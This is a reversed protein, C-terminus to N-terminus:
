SEEPIVLDQPDIVWEEEEEWAPALVFRGMIKGMGISEGGYEAPQSSASSSKEDKNGEEIIVATTLFNMATAPNMELNHGGWDFSVKGSKHVNLNGIMGGQSILSSMFGKRDEEKTKESEASDEDDDNDLDQEKKEVASQTLDIAPQSSTTPVASASARRSPTNSMVIDKPESKILTPSNPEQKHMKLPPLMPPFQFLYLRGDKNSVQDTEDAEQGEPTMTISGLENAILDLDAQIIRDEPDLPTVKNPKAASQPKKDQEGSEIPEVKEDLDMADEDKPEEKIALVSKGKDDWHGEEPIMQPKDSGPGAGDVWLSEEEGTSANEKAELEATTAVVVGADKHERRYIGMPLVKIPKSELMSRM